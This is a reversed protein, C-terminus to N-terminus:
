IGHCISFRPFKGVPMFLVVRFVWIVPAVLFRVLVLNRFQLLPKFLVLVDYTDRESLVLVGVEKLVELFVRWIRLLEEQGKVNEQRWARSALELQPSKTDNCVLLLAATSSCFCTFSPIDKYFTFADLAAYESANSKKLGGSCM